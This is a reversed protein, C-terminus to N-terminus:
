WRRCLPGSLVVAAVGFVCDSWSCVSCRTDKGDGRVVARAACSANGVVGCVSYWCTCARSTLLRSSVLDVQVRETLQDHRNAGAYIHLCCDHLGRSPLRLLCYLSGRVTVHGSLPAASASPILRSSVRSAGSRQTCWQSCHLDRRYALVAIRSWKSPRFIADLALAYHSREVPRSASVAWLWLARRATRHVLHRHTQAACPRGARAVRMVLRLRQSV